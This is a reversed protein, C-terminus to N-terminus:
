VALARLFQGGLRATSGSGCPGHANGLRQERGPDAGFWVQPRLGGGGGWAM